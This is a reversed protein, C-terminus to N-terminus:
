LLAKGNEADVPEPGPLLGSSNAYIYRGDVSLVGEGGGVDGIFQTCEGGESGEWGETGAGGSFAEEGVRRSGGGEEEQGNNARDAVTEGGGVSDGGGREGGGTGGGGDSGVARRGHVDCAGKAGGGEDEGEM